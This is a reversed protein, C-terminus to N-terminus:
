KPRDVGFDFVKGGSASEMTVAARLFAYEGPELPKSPRVQYIGPAVQKSEVAVKDQPRVGAKIGTVGGQGVALQRENSKKELRALVFDDTSSPGSASFADQGTAFYFWFEPAAETVRLAARDGTIIIKCTMKMIGAGCRSQSYTYPELRMLRKDTGQNPKWYIGIPHPSMPDNPDPPPKKASVEKVVPKAAPGADVMAHIVADSVGAAKLKLIADISTDYNNPSSKIKGIIIDDGVKAEVMKLIDANTLVDSGSSSGSAGAPPAQASVNITFAVILVPVFLLFYMKRSM